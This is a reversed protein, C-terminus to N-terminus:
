TNALYPAAVYENFSRVPLGWTRQWLALRDLMEAM